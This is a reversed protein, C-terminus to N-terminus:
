FPNSKTRYKITIDRNCKTIGLRDSDGHLWSSAGTVQIKSFMYRHIIILMFLKNLPVVVLHCLVVKIFCWHQCHKEIRCTVVLFICSHTSLNPSLSYLALARSRMRLGLVYRAARGCSTARWLTSMTTGGRVAIAWKGADLSGRYCFLRYPQSGSVPPGLLLLGDGGADLRARRAVCSRLRRRRRPPSSMRASTSSCTDGERRM